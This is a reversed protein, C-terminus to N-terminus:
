RLCARNTDLVRVRSDVADDVSLCAFAVGGRGFLSMHHQQTQAARLRCRVTVKIDGRRDSELSVNVCSDRHVAAYTGGREGHGNKSRKPVKNWDRPVRGRIGRALGM